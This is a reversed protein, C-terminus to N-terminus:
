KMDLGFLWQFLCLAYVPFRTQSESGSVEQAFGATQNTNRAQQLTAATIAVIILSLVGVVVSTIPLFMGGGGGGGM